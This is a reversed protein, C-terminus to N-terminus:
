LTRILNQCHLAIQFLADRVMSYVRAAREILVSFMAKQCIM